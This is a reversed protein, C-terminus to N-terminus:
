QPSPLPPAPSVPFSCSPSSSPLDGPPRLPGQAWRASPPHVLPQSSVRNAATHFCPVHTDPHATVHQTSSPPLVQPEQSAPAPVPVTKWPNVVSTASALYSSPSPCPPFHLQPGPSPSLGWPRLHALPQGPPSSPLTQCRPLHGCSIATSLVRKWPGVWPAAGLSPSNGTGGRM